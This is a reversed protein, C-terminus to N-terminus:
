RKINRAFSQIPILKESPKRSFPSVNGPCAQLGSSPSDPSESRQLLVVNRELDSKALTEIEPVNPFDQHKDGKPVEVRGAVDSSYEDRTGL